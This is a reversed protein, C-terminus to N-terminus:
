KVVRKTINNYHFYTCIFILALLSSRLIFAYISFCKEIIATTRENKNMKVIEIFLHVLNKVLSTSKSYFPFNMEERYGM